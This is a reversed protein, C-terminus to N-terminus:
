WGGAGRIVHFNLFSPGFRKFCKSGFMVVDNSLVLGKTNARSLSAPQHQWGFYYLKLAQMLANDIYLQLSM